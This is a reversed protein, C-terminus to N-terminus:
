GTFNAAYSKPKVNSVKADVIEYQYGQSQAYKQAEEKSTFSLKIQAKTDDCATWGMVSDLHRVNDNLVNTLVWARNKKNLSKGSQMASKAIEKIIVKM